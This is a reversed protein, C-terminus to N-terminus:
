SPIGTIAKFFGNLNVGGVFLLGILNFDQNDMKHWDTSFMFFGDLNVKGVFLSDDEAHNLTASSRRM